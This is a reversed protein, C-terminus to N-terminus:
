EYIIKDIYIDSQLPKLTQINYIYVKPKNGQPVTLVSGGKNTENYIIFVKDTGLKGSRVQILSM